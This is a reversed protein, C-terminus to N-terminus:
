SVMICAVLELLPKQRKSRKNDALTLKIWSNLNWLLSDNIERMQLERERERKRTVWRRRKKREERLHYFSFIWPPLPPCTQAPSPTFGWRSTWLLPVCVSVVASFGLIPIARFTLKSRLWWRMSAPSSHTRRCTVGAQKTRQDALIAVLLSPPCYCLNCSKNNCFCWAPLFNKSRQTWTNETLVGTSSSATWSEKLWNIASCLWFPAGDSAKSSWSPWPIVVGDHHKFHQEFSFRQEQQDM